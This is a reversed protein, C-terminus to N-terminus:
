QKKLQTVIDTFGQISIYATAIIIWDGSTLNGFFLGACAIIFVMLKRSIFKNLMVDLEQRSM